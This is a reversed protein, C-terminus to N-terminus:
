TRAVQRAPEALHAAQCAVTSAIDIDGIENIAHHLPERRGAAYIRDEPAGFIVFNLSVSKAALRGPSPPLGPPDPVALPQSRPMVVVTTTNPATESNVSTDLSIITGSRSMKRTCDKPAGNASAPSMSPIASPAVLRRLIRLPLNASRKGVRRPSTM